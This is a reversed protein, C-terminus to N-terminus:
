AEKYYYPGLADVVARADLARGDQEGPALFRVVMDTKYGTPVSSITAGYQSTTMTRAYDNRAAVVFSPKGAEIAMEAARLLTMERVVAPATTAGTLSVQVSGDANPQASFGDTNKVGQLLTTGMSFAAGVLAGLVNPRSRKYVSNTGATEPEITAMRVMSDFLAKRATAQRNSAPDLDGPFATEPQGQAIRVAKFLDATVADVPLSAGQLRAIADTKRGEQLAIRAEIRTEYSAILDAYPKFINAQAEASLTEPQGSSLAAFRAKTQAMDRRAGAVDGTTARAYALLMGNTLQSRSALVKQLSGLPSLSKEPTTAPVDVPPLALQAMAKFDGAYGLVTLQYQAFDPDLRNAALLTAQAAADNQGHTLLLHAAVRQVELAYPRAAASQRALRLAEDRNGMQDYVLARLLDLSVAMSRRYLADAAADGAAAGALDIDALAGPLNDAKLQATARARLLRARRLNQTALLKPHALAATCAAIVSQSSGSAYDGYRMTNQPYSLGDASKGPKGNGDCGAFVDTDSAHATAACAVGCLLMTSGILGKM